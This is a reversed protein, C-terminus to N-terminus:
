EKFVLILTFQSSSARCNHTHTDKFMLILKYGREKRPLCKEILANNYKLNDIEENM